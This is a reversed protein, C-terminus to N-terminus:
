NFDDPAPDDYTQDYVPDPDAQQVESESDPSWTDGAGAGGGTGGDFDPETTQQEDVQMEADAMGFEELIITDIIADNSDNISVLTDDDSVVYTANTTNIHAKVFQTQQRLPLKEFCEQKIVAKKTKHKWFWSM